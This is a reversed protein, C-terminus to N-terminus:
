TRPGETNVIRALFMPVFRAETEWATAQRPAGGSEDIDSPAELRQHRPLISRTGEGTGTDRWGNAERHPGSTPSVFEFHSNRFGFHERDGTM